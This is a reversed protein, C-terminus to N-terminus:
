PITLSTVGKLEAEQNIFYNKHVLRSTWMKFYHKARKNHNYM